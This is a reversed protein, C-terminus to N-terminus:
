AFFSMFADGMEAAFQELTILGDVLMERLTEFRKM